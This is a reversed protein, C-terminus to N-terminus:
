VFQDGKLRRIDSVMQKIEQEKSKECILLVDGSDVVIFEDLGQLVVLKEHPAIVLSNAADYILVHKGSVANGLYDKPLTEYLSAYTGLDSWGFRSRIVNVNKAKELIGHDISVSPSTAFAHAIFEKEQPTNYKKKGEKFIDNVEPLYHHYANLLTRVNSIFIGANWLFDGSQFFTKALEAPPKEVFTKVRFFGDEIKDEMFQIYGYGTDPRTPEIGLTIISDKKHALGVGRKVSELFTHEQTIVHDSPAIVVTAEPDLSAIKYCAYAICPATNKRVAEILIREASIGPLQEKVIPLYSENTTVFLREKPYIQAFREYSLQLLSKGTGLFDIFQKPFRNRSLPWFRSGVGGALIVAYDHRNM